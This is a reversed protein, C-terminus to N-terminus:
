ICKEEKCGGRMPYLVRLLHSIIVLNLGRGYGNAEYAEFSTHIDWEGSFHLNEYENLLQIPGGIMNVISGLLTLM